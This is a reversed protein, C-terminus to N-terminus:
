QGWIAGAGWLAFIVLLALKHIITFKLRAM